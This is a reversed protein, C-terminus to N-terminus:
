VLASASVPHEQSETAATGVTCGQSGRMYGEGQELGESLTDSLFEVQSPSPTPTPSFRMLDGLSILWFYYFSISGDGCFRSLGDM